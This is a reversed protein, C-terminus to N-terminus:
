ALYQTDWGSIIRQPIESGSRNREFTDTDPQFFIDEEDQDIENLKPSAVINSRALTKEGSRFLAILDICYSAGPQPLNIYWSVDKLSLPIDYFDSINDSKLEEGTIEYIRLFLHGAPRSDRIEEIDSHKMDWYAFAWFPDRLMLVIRNENYGESLPYEDDIETQLAQDELIKFKREKIWMPSNNDLEREVQEEEFVELLMELLEEKEPLEDFKLGKERAINELDDIPLLELRDRIM